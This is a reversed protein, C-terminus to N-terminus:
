KTRRIIFENEVKEFGIKPYYEMAIPALLLVLATEKGIEKKTL